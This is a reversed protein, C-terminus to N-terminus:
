FQNLLMCDWETPIPREEEETEIIQFEEQDCFSCQSAMM